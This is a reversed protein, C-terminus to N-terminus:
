ITCGEHLRRKAQIYAAHAQEPTEYVGLHITKRNVTIAAVWSDARVSTKNRSVGMFGTENKRSQSRTNELNTRTPVDRLNEIRNDSRIGNIHDITHKPWEGHVYLWARVAM